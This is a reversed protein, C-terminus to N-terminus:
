SRRRLLRRPRCILRDTGADRVDREVCDLHNQRAQPLHAERAGLYDQGLEQVSYTAEIGSPNRVRDQNTWQVMWRAWRAKAERETMEDAYGFNKQRREGQDDYWRTRWIERGGKM